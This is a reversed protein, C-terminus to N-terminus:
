RRSPCGDDLHPESPACWAEFWSILPHFQEDLFTEPASDGPLAEAIFARVQELTRCTRVFTPMAPGIRPDGLLLLRLMSYEYRSIASTSRSALLDKLRMVDSAVDM